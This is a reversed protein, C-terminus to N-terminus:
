AVNVWECCTCLLEEFNGSMAEKLFLDCEAKREEAPMGIECLGKNLATKVRGLIAFANGGHGVLEVTINNYKPM